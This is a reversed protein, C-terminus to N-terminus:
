KKQAIIWFKYGPAGNNISPYEIRQPIDPHQSTRLVSFGSTKLYTIFEAPPYYAFFREFAVGNESSEEVVEYTTQGDRPARTKVAFVGRPCLLAYAKELVAPLVTRPTHQLSTIAWVAAYSSEEFPTVGVPLDEFPINHFMETLVDDLTGIYGRQSLYHQADPQAALHQEMAKRAHVLMGSSLDVGVVRYGAHLIPVLDKGTGCGIDLIKGPLPALEQVDLFVGAIGKSDVRAKYGTAATDYATRNMDLYPQAM